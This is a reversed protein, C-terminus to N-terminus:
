GCEHARVKSITCISEEEEEFVRRQKLRESLYGRLNLGCHLKIVTVKQEIVVCMIEKMVSLETIVDEKLDM